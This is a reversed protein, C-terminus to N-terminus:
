LLERKITLTYYFKGWNILLDLKAHESALLSWLNKRNQYEVFGNWILISILVLFINHFTVRFKFCGSVHFVTYIKYSAVFDAFNPVNGQWMVRRLAQSNKEGGESLSSKAFRAVMIQGWLRISNIHPKVRRWSDELIGCVKVKLIPGCMKRSTDSSQSRTQWNIRVTFFLDWTVM